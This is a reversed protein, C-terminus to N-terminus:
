LKGWKERRYDRYGKMIFKVVKWREKHYLLNNKLQIFLSHRSSKISEPLTKQYRSRVYLFNRVMYYLRVPHHLRRDTLEWNKLSRHRKLYGMSHNMYINAMKVIEYNNVLARYCYEHDVEDIFLNEDFGGLKKYVDMNIVSGSTILKDVPVPNCSSQTQKGHYDIGFMATSHLQHYSEMCTLYTTLMGDDFFSDQDMTLVFHYKNAIAFECAQNLRKAIGENEGNHFYICHKLQKFWHENSTKSNDFILTQAAYNSYTEINSIVKEDPNYLIVAAIIKM